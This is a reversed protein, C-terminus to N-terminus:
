IFSKRKGIKGIKTSFESNVFHKAALLSENGTSNAISSAIGINNFNASKMTKLLTEDNGECKANEIMNKLIHNTSKISSSLPLLSQDNNAATTTSVSISITEAQSLSPLHLGTVDTTSSVIPLIGSYHASSESSSINRLKKLLEDGKMTMVEREEKSLETHKYNLHAILKRKESYSDLCGDITCRYPNNARKHEITHRTLM